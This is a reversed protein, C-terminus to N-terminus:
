RIRLLESSHVNLAISVECQKEIESTVQNM